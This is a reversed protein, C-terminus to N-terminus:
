HTINYTHIILTIRCTMSADMICQLCQFNIAQLCIVTDKENCFSLARTNIHPFSNRLATNTLFTIHFAAARIISITIPTYSSVTPNTQGAVRTLKLKHM